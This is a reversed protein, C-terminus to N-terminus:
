CPECLLAVVALEIAARKGVLVREVNDCLREAVLQVQNPM